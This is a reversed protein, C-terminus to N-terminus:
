IYHGMSILEAVEAMFPQTEPDAMVREGASKADALSKWTVIDTFVMPDDASTVAHWGLFGPFAEIHPRVARRAAEATQANKVKYVTIEICPANASVKM